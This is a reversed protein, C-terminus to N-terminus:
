FIGASLKGARLRQSFEGIANGLLFPNSNSNRQAFEGGSGNMLEFRITGRLDDEPLSSGVGCFMSQDDIFDSNVVAGGSGSDM